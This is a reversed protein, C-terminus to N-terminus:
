AQCYVLSMDAWKLISIQQCDRGVKLAKTKTPERHSKDIYYIGKSFWVGCNGNYEKIAKMAEEPTKCEVGETAVQYGTKFKVRKGNKLTMGDDEKLNKISRVNIM